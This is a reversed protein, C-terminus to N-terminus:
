LKAIKEYNPKVGNDDLKTIGHGIIKGTAQILDDIRWKPIIKLDISTNLAKSLDEIAQLQKNHSESKTYHNGREEVDKLYKVSLEVGNKTVVFIDDRFKSSHENLAKEANDLLEGPIGQLGLLIKLDAKPYQSSNRHLEKVKKFGLQLIETQESITLERDFIAKVAELTQNLYPIKENNFQKNQEIWSGDRYLFKKNNFTNLPTSM